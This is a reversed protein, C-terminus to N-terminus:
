PGAILTLTLTMDNTLTLILTLDRKAERENKRVRVRILDRKAERENKDALLGV